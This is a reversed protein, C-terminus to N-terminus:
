TNGDDVFPISWPPDEGSPLELEGIGRLRTVLFQGLPVEPESLEAFPTQPLIVISKAGTKTGQPGEEDARQLIRALPIKAETVTWNRVPFFATFPM